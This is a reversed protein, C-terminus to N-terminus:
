QKMVNMCLHIDNFVEHNDNVLVFMVIMGNEHGEGGWWKPFSLSQLLLM